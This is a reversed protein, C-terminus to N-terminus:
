GNDENTAHDLAENMLDSMTASAESIGELMDNGRARSKKPEARPSKMPVAEVSVTVDNKIVATYAPINVQRGFLRDQQEPTLTLGAAHSPLLIIRDIWEKIDDPIKRLNVDNAMFMRKQQRWEMQLMKEAPCKGGRLCTRCDHDQFDEGRRHKKLKFACVIYRADRDVVPCHFTFQNGQVNSDMESM